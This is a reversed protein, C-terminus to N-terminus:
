ASEGGPHACLDGRPPGEGGATRRHRAEGPGLASRSGHDQDRGRDPHERGVETDPGVHTVERTPPRLPKATGRGEGPDDAFADRDKLPLETGRPQGSPAGRAGANVTWSARTYRENVEGRRGPM